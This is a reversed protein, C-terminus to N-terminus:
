DVFRFLYVVGLGGGHLESEGGSRGEEGSGECGSEGLRERKDSVAAVGDESVVTRVM